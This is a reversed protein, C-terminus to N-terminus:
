AELLESELVDHQLDIFVLLNDGEIITSLTGYIRVLYSGLEKDHEVEHKLRIDWEEEGNLERPMGHDDIAQTFRLPLFKHMHETTDPYVRFTYSGVFTDIQVEEQNVWLSVFDTITVM